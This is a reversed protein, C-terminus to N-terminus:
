TKEDCNSLKIEEQWNLVGELIKNYTTVESGLLKRSFFSDEIRKGVVEPTQLNSIDYDIKVESSTQKKEETDESDSTETEEVEPQPSQEENNNSSGFSCGFLSFSLLFALFLLNIKKRM